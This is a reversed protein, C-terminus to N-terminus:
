FGVFDDTFEGTDIGCLGTGADSENATAAGDDSFDRWPKFLVNEGLSMTLLLMIIGACLVSKSSSLLKIPISQVMNTMIALAQSPAIMPAATTEVGSIVAAKRAPGIPQNNATGM